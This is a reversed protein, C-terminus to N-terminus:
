CILLGEVLFKHTSGLGSGVRGPGPHSMFPDPNPCCKTFIQGVRGSGDQFHTPNPRQKRVRVRGPKMRVLCQASCSCLRSSDLAWFQLLLTQSDSFVLYVLSFPNVSFTNTDWLTMSTSLPSPPVRSDDKTIVVRKEARKNSNYVEFMEWILPLSIGFCLLLMM